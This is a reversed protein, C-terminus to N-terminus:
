QLMEDSAEQQAAFPAFYYGGQEDLGINGCEGTTINVGFIRGTRSQNEMLDEYYEYIFYYDQEDSIRNVSGFKYVYRGQIGEKNGYRDLIYGQEVLAISLRQLEDNVSYQTDLKLQS